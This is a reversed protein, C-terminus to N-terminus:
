YDSFTKGTIDQVSEFSVPQRAAEHSAPASFTGPKLKMVCVPQVMRVASGANPPPVPKVPPHVRFTAAGASNATTDEVVMHLAHGNNWPFSLMDGARATYNAPLGSVQVSTATVAVLTCTGDFAGGGARSLTLVASGYAAPYAKEPDSALFTRGGRLTLAWAQWKQRDEMQLDVTRWTAGWLSPGIEMTQIAGSELMNQVSIDGLQFDVSAFLAGAPFSRPYSIAM